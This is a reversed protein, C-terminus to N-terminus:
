RSSNDPFMLLTNFFPFFSVNDSLNISDNKISKLNHHLLFRLIIKNAVLVTLIADWGGNPLIRQDKGM